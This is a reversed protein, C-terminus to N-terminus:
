GLMAICWCLTIPWAVHTCSPVASLSVQLHIQINIKHEPIDMLEIKKEVIEEDDHKIDIGTGVNLIHKIKNQIQPWM